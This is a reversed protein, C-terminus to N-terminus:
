PSPTHSTPASSPVPVPCGLPQLATSTGRPASTVPHVCLWLPLSSFTVAPFRGSNPFIHSCLPLSSCALSSLGWRRRPTNHGTGTLLQGRMCLRKGEETPSVAGCHGVAGESASQSCLTLPPGPPRLGEHRPTSALDVGTPTHVAAGTGDAGRRGGCCPFLTLARRPDSSPM